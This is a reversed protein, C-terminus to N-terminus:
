FQPLGSFTVGFHSSINIQLSVLLPLHLFAREEGMIQRFAPSLNLFGVNIRGGREVFSFSSL